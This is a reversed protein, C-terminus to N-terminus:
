SRVAGHLAIRAAAARTDHSATALAPRKAPLVSKEVEQHVCDARDAIRDLQAM